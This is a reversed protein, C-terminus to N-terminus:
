MLTKTNINNEGKYYPHNKDTRRVDKGVQNILAKIDVSPSTPQQSRSSAATNHTTGEAARGVRQQQQQQPHTRMEVTGSTTASSISSSAESTSLYKMMSRRFSGNETPPPQALTTSNSSSSGTSSNSSSNAQRPTPEGNTKVVTAAEKELTRRGMLSHSHTHTPILNFPIHIINNNNHHAQKPFQFANM